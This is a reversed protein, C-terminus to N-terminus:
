LKDSRIAPNLVRRGEERADDLCGAGAWPSWNSGSRRPASLAQFNSVAMATSASSQPQVSSWRDAGLATKRNAVLSTLDDLFAQYTTRAPKRVWIAFRANRLPLDGRLMEYVGGAGGAADKAIDDHPLKNPTAVAAENIAGLSGFDKVLYWDEYGRSRRKSWPRSDLRFSIADILGDPGHSKLSEQFAVLKREYERLPMGSRPRHWFVYGLFHGM